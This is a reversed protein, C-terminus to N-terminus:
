AADPRLGQDDRGTLSFAPGQGARLRLAAQAERVVSEPEKVLDTEFLAETEPVVTGVREVVAAFQAADLGFVREAQQAVERHLRADAGVLFLDAVAGSLAVCRNFTDAAELARRHDHRHSAAIAETLRSPLRWQELLWAGVEAHDMGVRGQEYNALERHARQLEGTDVYLDPMARDLALMGLDQLLGCLFLDELAGQGTAEGLARAASAALLTRRWYHPYNVGHPKEGRLSKVLSFGLALTLTANLGLVVLAQRLNSSKRLQAYLPSNAIRLVKAALAADRSIAMAVCDMDTQPQGVLRLIESAVGPPSPFNVFHRLHTNLDPRM